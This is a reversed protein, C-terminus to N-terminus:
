NLKFKSVVIGFKRIRTRLTNRNMGLLKSAISQNGFSRKLAKTILSKETGAMVKEYVGFDFDGASFHDETKIYDDHAVRMM